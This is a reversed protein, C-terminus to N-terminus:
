FINMSSMKEIIKENAARTFDVIESGTVEDINIWKAGLSEDPRFRLEKTEDAELLYVVDLHNHSHVLKRKRIHQGIEYSQIAFISDCIIEAKQGTEEEVERLVVALLDAEGDAHGGPCVWAGYIKHHVVLVKTRDRNLVFASATFHVAENERTLVNDFATLCNLFYQKDNIEQENFPIFDILEEKLEETNKM